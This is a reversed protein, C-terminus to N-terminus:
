EAGKASRSTRMADRLLELTNAVEASAWLQKMTRAARRHWSPYKDGVGPINQQCTEHWLDEVNVVV